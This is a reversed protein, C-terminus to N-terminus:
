LKANGLRSLRVTAPLMSNKWCIQLLGPRNSNGFARELLAVLAPDTNLSGLLRNLKGIEWIPHFSLPFWTISGQQQRSPRVTARHKNTPRYETIVKQMNAILTPCAYFQRFRDIYTELAMQIDRQESCLRALAHLRAIPWSHVGNAHASDAELPRMLSTKKFFPKTCILGDRVFVLVDLMSVEQPSCEELKLKFHSCRSQLSDLFNLAAEPSKAIYFIDDKFRVYNTVGFSQLLNSNVSWGNHKRVFGSEVASYFSGDAVSGSHRMGMGTGLNVQVTSNEIQESMVFQNGLLFKLSNSFAHRINQPVLDVTSSVLQEASGSM